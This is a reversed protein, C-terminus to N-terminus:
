EAAFQKAENAKEWNVIESLRWRTARPGLSVPKPIIGKATWNWVTAKSVGVRSAIEDVNLWREDTENESIM